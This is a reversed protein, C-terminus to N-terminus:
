QVQVMTLDLIRGQHPLDATHIEDVASRELRAVGDIFASRLDGCLLEALDRGELQGDAGRLLTRASRNALVVRGGTDIVVVSERLSQLVAHVRDFAAEVSMLNAQSVRSRQEVALVALNF